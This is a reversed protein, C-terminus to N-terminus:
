MDWRSAVAPPLVSNVAGGQARLNLVQVNEEREIELRGDELSRAFAVIM